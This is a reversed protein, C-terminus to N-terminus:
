ISNMRLAYCVEELLYKIISGGAICGGKDLEISIWKGFRSSNDNRLTKANGFAELVPNAQLLRQEISLFGEADDLDAPSVVPVASHVAHPDNKRKLSRFKAQSETLRAKRLRSEHALYSLIQKTAETKGAGSEGSILISQNCQGSGHKGSDIGELAEAYAARAVSFVHPPLSDASAQVSYKTMAAEDYLGDIDKYPNM